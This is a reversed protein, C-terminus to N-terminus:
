VFVDREELSLVGHFGWDGHCEGGGDDRGADGGPVRV